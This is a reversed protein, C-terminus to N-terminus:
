QADSLSVSKCATRRLTVVRQPHQGSVAHGWAPLKMERPRDTNEYELHFHLVIQGLPQKNHPLLLMTLHEM